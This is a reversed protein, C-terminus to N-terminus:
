LSDSVVSRSIQYSILLATITEPPHCLSEAMDICIDKKGWVELPLQEPCRKEEKHVMFIIKFFIGVVLTSASALVRKGGRLFREERVTLVM